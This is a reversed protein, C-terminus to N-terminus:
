WNFEQTSRDYIVMVQNLTIKIDNVHFQEGRSDAADSLALLYTVLIRKYQAKFSAIIGADLPQVHSTTNPPLFLLIVNDLEIYPLGELEGAIHPITDDVKHSPANDSLLLIRRRQGKMQKDLKVL